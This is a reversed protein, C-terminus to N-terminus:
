VRILGTVVAVFAEGADDLARDIKSTVTEAPLANHRVPSSVVLDVTALAVRDEMTRRQADLREIETRVRDLQTEVQLAEEVTQVKGLIDLLRTELTRESRL